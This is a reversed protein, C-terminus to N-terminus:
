IHILSLNTGDLFNDALTDASSKNGTLMGLRRMLSAIDELNRSETRFITLGLKELQLLDETPNGSEWAVVLDPELSLIKEIDFQNSAGIQAIELAEAPFDSYEVVGVIESGAGIHFLIETLNPALSIIRTAPASITVTVGTDDIAQIEAMSKSSIGVVFVLGILASFLQKM